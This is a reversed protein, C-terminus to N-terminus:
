PRRSIRAALAPGLTQSFKATLHNDDTYVVEGNVVPSCRPAPCILDNMDIFRIPLGEAARNQAAVALTSISAARDYGCARAFSLGAAQRSLCQPVDFHTQPNDRMVITTIGARTLRTYTRRLGAEWQEPTVQWSSSKGDMALYHDWSSLIVVAPRTQLIRQIM